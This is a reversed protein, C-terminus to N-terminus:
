TNRLVFICFSSPAYIIWLRRKLYISFLIAGNTFVAYPSDCIDAIARVSNTM